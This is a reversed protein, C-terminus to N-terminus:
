EHLGIYNKRSLQLVTDLLNYSEVEDLVIDVARKVERRANSPACSVGSKQLLPLDLIDDGIYFLNEFNMELKNLREIMIKEKNLSSSIVFCNEIENLKITLEDGERATIIGAFHKKNKLANSFETMQLYINEEDESNKLLVGDLDFMYILIKDLKKYYDINNLNNLRM